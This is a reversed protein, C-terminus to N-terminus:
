YNFLMYKIINKELLYLLGRFICVTLILWGLSYRVIDELYSINITLYIFGDIFCRVIQKKNM